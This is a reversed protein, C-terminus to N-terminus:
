WVVEKRLVSNVVIPGLSLVVVALLLLVMSDTMVPM